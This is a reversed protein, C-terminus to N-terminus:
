DPKRFLADLKAAADASAAPAGRDVPYEEAIRDEWYAAPNPSSFLRRAVEPPVHRYVKFEGSAFEIELAQAAEDYGASKLKTTHLPKRAPM